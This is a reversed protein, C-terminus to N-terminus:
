CIFYVLSFNYRIETLVYTFNIFVRRSNWTFIVLINNISSPLNYVALAPIHHHTCCARLVPETMMLRPLLWCAATNRVPMATM